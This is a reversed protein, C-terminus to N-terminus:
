KKIRWFKFTLHPNDILEMGINDPKILRRVFNESDYRMDHVKRKCTKVGGFSVHENWISYYFNGDQVIRYNPNMELLNATNYLDCYQCM